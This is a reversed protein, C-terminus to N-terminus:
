SSSVIQPVNKKESDWMVETLHKTFKILKRRSVSQHNNLPWELLVYHNELWNLQGPSLMFTSYCLSFLHFLYPCCGGMIQSLLWPYTSTRWMLWLDIFKLTAKSTAAVSFSCTHTNIIHSCGLAQLLLQFWASYLYASLNWSESVCVTDMVVIISHNVKQWGWAGLTLFSSYWHAGRCAAISLFSSKLIVDKM